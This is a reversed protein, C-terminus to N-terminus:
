IRGNYPVIFQLIVLMRGGLGKTLGDKLVIKLGPNELLGLFPLPSLLFSNRWVWTTAEVTEDARLKEKLEAGLKMKTLSFFM